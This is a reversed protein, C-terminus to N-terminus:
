EQAERFVRVLWTRPQLRVTRVDKAQKHDGGDPRVVATDVILLDVKEERIREKNGYALCWGTTNRKVGGDNVCGTVTFPFRGRAHVGEVEHVLDGLAEQRKDVVQAVLDIVQVLVHAVPSRFPDSLSKRGQAM